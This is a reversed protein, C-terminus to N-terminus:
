TKGVGINQFFRGTSPLLLNRCPCLTTGTIMVVNHQSVIVNINM